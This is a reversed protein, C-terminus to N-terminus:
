ANASQEVFHGQMSVSSKPPSLLSYLSTAIRKLVRVCGFGFKLYVVLLRVECYKKLCASKKCKCGMNHVKQASKSGQSNDLSFRNQFAKSNKARTDKIAKERIEGAEPTNGCDVCNCGQCFREAAFCECYLKLCRSKKCNCPSRKPLSKKKTNEKGDPHPVSRNLQSLTTADRPYSLYIPKHASAMPYRSDIKHPYM